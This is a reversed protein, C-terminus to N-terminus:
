HDDSNLQDQLSRIMSNQADWEENTPGRGQAAMADLREKTMDILNKVDEGLQILTGINTLANNAFDVISQLDGTNM